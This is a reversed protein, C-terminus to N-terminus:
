IHILSLTMIANLTQKPYNVVRSILSSEGDGMEASEESETSQRLNFVLNSAFAKYVKLFSVDASQLMTRVTNLYVTEEIERARDELSINASEDETWWEDLIKYIEEVTTNRIVTSSVRAASSGSSRSM